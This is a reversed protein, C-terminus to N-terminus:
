LPRLFRQRGSRRRVQTQAEANDSLMQANDGSCQIDSVFMVKFRDGSQTKFSVPESFGGDISYVYYYVTNEELGTVTVRNVRQKMNEAFSVSGIFAKASAMDASKSVKVCPKGKFMESHWNFNMKSADSGPTLSILANNDKVTQWYATWQAPSM